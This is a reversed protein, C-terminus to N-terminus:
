NPCSSPCCHSSCAVPTNACHSHCAVPVAGPKAASASVPAVFLAPILGFAVVLAAGLMNPKM